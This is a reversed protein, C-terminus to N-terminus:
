ARRNDNSACPMHAARMLRRRAHWWANEYLRRVERDPEGQRAARQAQRHDADLLERIKRFQFRATDVGYSLSIGTM